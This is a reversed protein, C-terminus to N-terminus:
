DISDIILKKANKPVPFSFPETFVENIRVEDLELTLSSKNEPSDIIIKRALNDAGRDRFLINLILTGGEKLKRQYQGITNNKLSFLIYEVYEKNNFNKYLIEKDSGHSEDIEYNEPPEPSENRLFHALDEFTLSINILSSLDFDEPNGSFVENQMTNYFVFRDKKAFVNGLPIGFPGIVTMNLSDIWALKAKFKASFSTGDYNSTISGKISINQLNAEIHPISATRIKQKQEVSTACSGLLVSLFLLYICIAKM